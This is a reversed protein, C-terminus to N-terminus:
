KFSDAISTNITEVEGYNVVVAERLFKVYQEIVDYYSQFYKNSFEEYAEITAGSSQGTWSSGLSDITAKTRELLSKLETNDTELRSAISLVEDTNIKISVSEAM